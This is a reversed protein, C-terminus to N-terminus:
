NIYEWITKWISMQIKPDTHSAPHFNPVIKTDGIIIPRGTQKEIVDSITLNQKLEFITALMKWAIGGLPMIVKPKIIEIQRKLYPLSEVVGLKEDFFENGRFHNGQRTFMIAVTFFFKDWVTQSIYKKFKEFYTKEIAKIIFKETRSSFTRFLYKNYDFNDQSKQKEYETIFPLLASYPGWDQGIIMIESDSRNEWDFWKNPIFDHLAFQNVYGINVQKGNRIKYSETVRNNQSLESWLQKLDNSKSNIMNSIKGKIIFIQFM